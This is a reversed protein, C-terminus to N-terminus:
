LWPIIDENLQFAEGEPYNVSYELRKGIAVGRIAEGLIYEM